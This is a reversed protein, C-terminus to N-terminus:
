VTVDALQGQKRCQHIFAGISQKDAIRSELDADFTSPDQAQFPYEKESSTFKIFVQDGDMSLDSVATSNINYHKMDFFTTQDSSASFQAMRTPPSSGGRGYHDVSKLDPADVSEAM